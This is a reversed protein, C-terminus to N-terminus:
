QIIVRTGVDAWNYLGEMDAYSVNVCGHSMPHGFNHHWYAGHIYLNGKSQYKFLLNWKTKPYDYGPGKYHVLPLKKLVTFEGTPTPLRKVGSSIKFEGMFKLDEFYKLTQDHLSVIIVKNSLPVTEPIEVAPPLDPFIKPIIPLSSPKLNEQELVSNGLIDGPLGRPHIAAHAFNFYGTALAALLVLFIKIKSNM